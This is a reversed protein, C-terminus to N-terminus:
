TKDWEIPYRLNMMSEVYEQNLFDNYSKDCGIELWFQSILKGKEFYSFEGAILQMCYDYYGIPDNRDLTEEIDYYYENDKQNSGYCFAYDSGKHNVSVKLISYRNVPHQIDDYAQSYSAYLKCKDGNYGIYVYGDTFRDIPIIEIVKSRIIRKHSSYEIIKADNEDILILDYIFIFRNHVKNMSIKLADKIMNYSEDFANSIDSSLNKGSPDTYLMISHTPMFTTYSNGKLYQAVMRKMSDDVIVKEYYIASRLM